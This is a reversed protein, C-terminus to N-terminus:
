PQALLMKASSYSGAHLEGFWFDVVVRAQSETLECRASPTKCWGQRAGTVACRSFSLLRSDARRKGAASPALPNPGTITM